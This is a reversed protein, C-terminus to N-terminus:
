HFPKVLIDLHIRFVKKANDSANRVVKLTDSQFYAYLNFFDNIHM